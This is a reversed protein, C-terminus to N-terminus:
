ERTNTDVQAHDTTHSGPVLVIYNYKFYYSTMYQRKTRQEVTGIGGQFVSILLELPVAWGAGMRQKKSAPSQKTEREM